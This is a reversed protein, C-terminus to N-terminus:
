RSPPNDNNNVEINMKEIRVANLVNLLRLIYEREEEIYNNEPEEVPTNLLKLYFNIDFLKRKTKLRENLKKIINLMNRNDNYKQKLSKLFCIAISIDYNEVEYIAMTLIAKQYNPLNLNNLEELSTEKDKISQLLTLLKEKNIQNNHNQPQSSKSKFKKILYRKQNQIPSYNSFRDENCLSFAEDFRRFYILCTIKQSQIVFVDKFRDENCMTLAKNIRGLKILCTIKQSQIRFNDKFIGNSAFELAEMYNGNRILERIKLSAKIMEIEELNEKQWRYITSKSVNLKSSIESIRIGKALRVLVKKKTENSCAM